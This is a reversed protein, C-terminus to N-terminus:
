LSNGNNPPWTPSQVPPTVPQQVAPVPTPPVVPTYPSTPQIQPTPPPSPPTPGGAPSQPKHNALYVLLVIVAAIAIVVFVAVAILIVQSVQKNHAAVQIDVQAQAIAIFSPALYNAPYLVATQQFNKLAVPYNKAVLATLGANWADSIPSKTNLTINNATVLAKYDAIDRIIGDGFCKSDACGIAGYTNLGIEEGDDNFSPGGSNGQAIPVTTSLLIHSNVASQVSFDELAGQTVSPVTHSRTTSLGDDVFAPFGIATLESGYTLDDISGLKAVPFTGKAKLISVDSSTSRDSNGSGKGLGGDELVAYDVDAAVFTAPIVTKNYTFTADDPNFKIPINSTQLAYNYTQNTIQIRSDPIYSGLSQMASAASQDGSDYADILQQVNSKTISGAALLYQFIQTVRRVFTDSDPSFIVYGNVIEEPPIRTVHGNTAVYGDSSVFSGSGVGAACTKGLSLGVKNNPLLLQVQACSSTGIRVVSPQNAAAVKIITDENLTSPVNSTGSPLASLNTVNTATSGTLTYQKNSLFSLASSDPAHFQLMKIISQYEAVISSNAKTIPSITIFYPRDNQVTLYYNEQSSTQIGSSESTQAFVIERYSITNVVIDTTTQPVFGSKAETTTINGAMYNLRDEDATSTLTSFYDKRINTYIDMVPSSYSLQGDKQGEPVMFKLTSYDRSTNLEKGSYSSGSLKTATSSADTVLGEVTFATGSYDISFGLTSNIKLVNSTKGTVAEVAQQQPTGSVKPAKSNIIFYTAVAALILATIIALIITHKLVKAVHTHHNPSTKIRHRITPKTRQKKM